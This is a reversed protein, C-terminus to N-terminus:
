SRGGTPMRPDAPYADEEKLPVVEADTQLHQPYICASSSFLYRSVGNLRGAELTHLNILANNRM